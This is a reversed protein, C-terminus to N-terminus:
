RISVRTYGVEKGLQSGNEMGLKKLVDQTTANRPANRSLEESSKNRVNKVQDKSNSGYKIVLEQISKLM